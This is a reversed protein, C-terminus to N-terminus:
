VRRSDSGVSCESCLGSMERRGGRTIESLDALSYYRGCGRCEGNCVVEGPVIVLVLRLVEYCRDCVRVVEGARTRCTKIWPDGERCAFCSM